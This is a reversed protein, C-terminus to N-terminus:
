LEREAMAMEEREIGRRRLAQFDEKILERIRKKDVTIQDKLEGYIVLAEDMAGSLLLAHARNVRALPHQPGVQLAQQSAVLAADTDQELLHLWAKHGLALALEEQM